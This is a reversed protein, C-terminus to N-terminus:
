FIYNISLKINRTSFTGSTMSQILPTRLATTISLGKWVPCSFGAENIIDTGSHSGTQIGLSIYPGLFTEKAWYSFMMRECHIDEAQPISYGSAFEGDHETELISRENLYNRYPISFGGTASWHGNIRYSVNIEAAGHLLATTEVGVMCRKHQSQGPMLTMYAFLLAM